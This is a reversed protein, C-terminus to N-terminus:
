LAAALSIACKPLQWIFFPFHISPFGGKSCHNNSDNDNISNNINDKKRIIPVQLDTKPM